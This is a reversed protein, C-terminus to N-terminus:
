GITSSSTLWAFPHRGASESSATCWPLVTGNRNRSPPFLQSSFLFHQCRSSYPRVEEIRDAVQNFYRDLDTERNDKVPVRLYGCTEDCPLPTNSLETETTANIVLSVGLQKMTPVTAASGGCLYLNRLLKSVATISYRHFFLFVVTFIFNMGLCSPPSPIARHWCRTSPRFILPQFKACPSRPPFTDIM